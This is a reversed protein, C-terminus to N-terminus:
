RPLSSLGWRAAGRASDRRARVRLPGGGKRTVPRRDGQRHYSGQEGPWGINPDYNDNFGLSRRNQWESGTYDTYYRKDDDELKYYAVNDVGKMSLTPGMHNGEATHNYVVDIIVELPAQTARCGM